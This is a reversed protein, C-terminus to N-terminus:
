LRERLEALHRITRLGDFDDGCNNQGDTLLYTEIGIASPVEYDFIRNDGVHILESVHVRLRDCVKRYFAEEKKVMGYDSTASIIHSFYPCLGTSSLEKVIFCRSANSAIILTYEHSLEEVVERAHPMVHIESDYRELLEEPTVSIAFKDMWYEITYWLLDGDGVSEYSRLVETKAQEFSIGRKKSYEDPIGHKWVMDGFRADVLTGDLDFSVIKKM